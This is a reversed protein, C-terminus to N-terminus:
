GCMPSRSFIRSAPSSCRIWEAIPNPPVGSASEPVPAPPAPRASDLPSEPLTAAGVIRPAHDYTVVLWRERKLAGAVAARRAPGPDPLYLTKANKWGPGNINFQTAVFYGDTKFFVVANGPQARDLFRAVEWYQRTIAVEPALFLAFHVAQVVLLLGVLVHVTAKSPHLRAAIAQWGGAALVFVVPFAEYYYREGVWSGSTFTVPLHAAVLALFVAPLIWYQRASPAPEKRAQYMAWVGAAALLLLFPENHLLIAQMYWRVRWVLNEFLQAPAADVLIRPSSRAIEAFVPYLSLLYRGTCAYNYFLTAAAAAAGSAALMGASLAFARLNRRVSWLLAAALVAGCAVATVSRILYAVGILLAMLGATKWSWSRSARLCCLLAGTIACACAVHSLMGIAYAFFFPSAVAFLVALRAASIDLFERALKWILWLLLLALLPNVLWGAHLAVGLALIAPWGPSYQPFWKGDHIIFFDFFRENDALAPDPSTPPLAAATVHGSLFTRATFQYAAEDPLSIGGHWYRGLWLALLLYFVIGAAVHRTRLVPIRSGAAPAPSRLLCLALVPLLVAYQIVLALLASHHPDVLTLWTLAALYTLTVVILSIRYWSAPM